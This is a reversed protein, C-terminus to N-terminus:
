DGKCRMATLVWAWAKRMFALTEARYQMLFLLLGVDVAIAIVMIVVPDL